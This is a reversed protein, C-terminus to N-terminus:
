QSKQLATYFQGSIVFKPFTYLQELLIRTLANKAGSFPVAPFEEKNHGFGQVAMSVAMMAVSGIVLFPKLYILSAFLSFTGVIFVPVAFIHLWLNVRSQHYKTYGQWQWEIIESFNM